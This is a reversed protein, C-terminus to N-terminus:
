VRVLSGTVSVPMCSRLVGCAAHDSLGVPVALGPTAAASAPLLVHQVSVLDALYVESVKLGAPPTAEPEFPSLPLLVPVIAVM